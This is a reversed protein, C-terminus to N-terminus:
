HAHKKERLRQFMDRITGTLQYTTNSFSSVSFTENPLDIYMTFDGDDGMYHDAWEDETVKNKVDLQELALNDFFVNFRGTLDSIQSSLAQINEDIFPTYYARGRGKYKYGLLLINEIPTQRLEMITDLKNVGVIIHAMIPIKTALAVVPKLSHGNYSVGVGFILNEEHLRVIQDMHKRVHVANVTINPVLDRNRLEHLFWELDPHDLPNGGGIAIEVGDGLEDFIRILRRLDAHKGQETSKEHCWACGARCYNTIKVDISEPFFPTAVDGFVHRVKTGDSCLIVYTNGNKYHYLVHPNQDM